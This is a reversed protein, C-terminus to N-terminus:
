RAAIRGNKGQLGQTNMTCRLSYLRLRFLLFQVRSPHRRDLDQETRRERVRQGSRSMLVLRKRSKVSPVTCSKRAPIRHHPRPRCATITFSTSTQGRSSAATSIGNSEKTRLEGAPSSGFKFAQVQSSSVQLPHCYQLRPFDFFRHRLKRPVKPIQRVVSESATPNPGECDLECVEKKLGVCAEIVCM